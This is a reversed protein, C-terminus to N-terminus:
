LRLAAGAPHGSLGRVSLGSCFDSLDLRDCSSPRAASCRPFGRRAGDQMTWQRIAPHAESLRRRRRELGLLEAGSREGSMPEFGTM